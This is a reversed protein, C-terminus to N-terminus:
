NNQKQMIQSGMKGYESYFNSRFTRAVGVVEKKGRQCSTATEKQRIVKGKGFEKESSDGIRM